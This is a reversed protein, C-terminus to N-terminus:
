GDIRVRLGSGWKRTVWGSNLFALFKTELRLEALREGFGAKVVPEGVLRLPCPHRLSTLRV